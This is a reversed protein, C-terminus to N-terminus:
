RKRTNRRITKKNRRITKKNRRVTKKNRRITKKYKKMNLKRGGLRTTILHSNRDRPDEANRANNRDTLTYSGIKNTQLKQRPPALMSNQYTDSIIKNKRKNLEEYSRKKMEDKQKSLFNNSINSISTPLTNGTNSTTNNDNTGTNDNTDTNGTTADNIGTNSNNGTINTLSNVTKSINTIKSVVGSLKDTLEQLGKMNKKWKNTEYVISSATTIIRPVYPIPNLKNVTNWVVLLKDQIGKHIDRVLNEFISRIEIIDPDSTEVNPCFIDRLQQKEIQIGTSNLLEFIRDLIFTRVWDKDFIM